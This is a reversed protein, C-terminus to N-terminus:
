SINQRFSQTMGDAPGPEDEAAVVEELGVHLRLLRLGHQACLSGLQQLREVAIIRDSIVVADVVGSTVLSVLSDYGGLVPSGQVRM